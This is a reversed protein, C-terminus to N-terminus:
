CKVLYDDPAPGGTPRGVAIYRINGTYSTYRGWVWGDAITYWGDLNVTEGTNYSAVVEGSLSPTTRVRLGDVTCRYTGAEFDSGASQQPEPAPAPAPAPTPEPTYTGGTMEAYYKKARAMYEANQSGAIEGPCDTAMYANHGIVNKGWEPEGLDYYKCLAAVLHAGNDLTAEGITWPGFQNNAHEIGITHGNAAPGAHWATDWDNVLQGIRGSEEVQYHASAERTQWVQWCGEVTLNGSNHHVVIQDIKANRGPSYHKDMIMNVDAELTEWNKM